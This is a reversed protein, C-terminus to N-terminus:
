QQSITTATAANTGATHGTSWCNMFNFGGTVGDVNLLEGCLFLGDCKKSAMTKMDIEPLAVGGATVFEEKYTSKGTLDLVCEALSRALARVHKKSVEGWVATPSLGSQVTVLASWLRKPIRAEVLPCITSVARHPSQTTCGWLRDAIDETNGLAPCWHVTVVPGRYELQHFEHAGFASLRLTAPGSVGHHTILLPGEQHLRKPKRRKKNSSAGGTKPKPMTLTLRAHPVSVGSLGHLLGGEKTQHKTNLTFLSPVPDVITHGLGEALAHGAKSSGTALVIADVELSSLSSTEIRFRKGTAGSSEQQQETPDAAVIQIVRHKHCIEVGAQDAARLLADIITQSNDTTPFMRGDPETKLQVGRSTFWERARTPPFHKHYLGTLEKSGRPYSGLIDAVPKTTDHLM